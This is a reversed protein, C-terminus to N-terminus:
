EKGQYHSYTRGLKLPTDQGHEMETEEEYANVLIAGRDSMFVTVVPADERSITIEYGRMASDREVEVEPAGPM